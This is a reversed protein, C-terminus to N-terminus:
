VKPRVVFPRMMENDEHSLIHCHWVYEGPRDFRAAIRTVEGPYMQATDKWGRENAEPPRPQGIVRVGGGGMMMGGGMFRQRSLIQFSVLHLHIPHADETLNYVEWVETDHLLPEETVPEHWMKPGGALTGLLPLLRGYSDTEEFLALQRTRAVPGFPAIPGLLPRLNSPVSSTDPAALPKSVRFALIQGATRPDIADGMPFPTRANNRVIITQGTRGAFDVIVDAREGPGLTLQNLAVPAPLLGADTGIQWFPQGSSFFLNYFRSDSGNLLRLRYRRPEVDLVPWAQGNVLIFDGFFEPLVSPNPAGDTEPESPLFLEGAATFMRDQIVIPVEYPHQPLNLAAENADRLIYFGALGAYVNVRTIGLAHDHYWLTAAEQDNEYVYIPQYLRGAPGANPTFWADPLGDSASSSHGGHLHTVIPVGSQPWGAPAAWHISTDVPLLHPLNATGSSLQNRWHVTVPQGSQAVITRGPYTANAASTGYGWVTTVLPSGNPGRLGLDQRFQYVGIDYTHNPGPQFVFGPDLPNPLPNVFKPQTLPDLLSPQNARLVPAATLFGAGLASQLFSRRKM